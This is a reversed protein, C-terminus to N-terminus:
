NIRMLVNNFLDYISHSLTEKALFYIAGSREAANRYEPIDFSSMIVLDINPNLFKIQKSVELGNEDPLRIDMFILHPTLREMTKRAEKGCSAQTIDMAPYHKSLLEILSHRFDENDDVILTKFM